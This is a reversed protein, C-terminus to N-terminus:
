TKLSRVKARERKYLKFHKLRKLQSKKKEVSFDNSEDSWIKCELLQLMEIFLDLNETLKKKRLFLEHNDAWHKMLFFFFFTGWWKGDKDDNHSTDSRSKVSHCNSMSFDVRQRFKKIRFFTLSWTIQRGM